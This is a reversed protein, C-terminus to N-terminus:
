TRGWHRAMDDEAHKGTILQKILAHQWSQKDQFVKISQPEIICKISLYYGKDHDTTRRRVIILQCKDSMKLGLIHRLHEEARVVRRHIRERKTEANKKQATKDIHGTQDGTRNLYEQPLYEVGLHEENLESILISWLQQWAIWVVEQTKRRDAIARHVALVFVLMKNNQLKKNGRVWDKANIHQLDAGEFPKLVVIECDSMNPRSATLVIGRYPDARIILSVDLALRDYENARRGQDLLEDEHKSLFKPLLPLMVSVNDRSLKNALALTRSALPDPRTNQVSTKAVALFM